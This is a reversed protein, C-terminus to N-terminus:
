SRITFGMKAMLGDFHDLDYFAISLRGKTGSRDARITVKTGLHEGLQKELDLLAAAREPMPAITRDDLPLTADSEPQQALRRSEQELKRVTWRESAATKALEIRASGAPAARLAKGHGMSLAGGALLAQIEDELDTLRILNAVSSRDLSVRQGIQGHTLGFQEALRRLAWAREIANLDERQVNEVLAWEAAQEDGLERVLAPITTLGARQAARWRREGAVLEYRMEDRVVGGRSEAVGAIGHARDNQDHSSAPRVIIPQILGTQRISDALRDLTVGDIRQRPQFQSPVIRDLAISVLGFENDASGSAGGRDSGTAGIPGRGSDGSETEVRDTPGHGATPESVLENINATQVATEDAVPPVDVRVPTEIQILSNLGRGLRRGKRRRPSDTGSSM